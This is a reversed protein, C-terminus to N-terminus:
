HHVLRRRPPRVALICDLDDLLLVDTLIHDTESGFDLDEFADLVGVDDAELLDDLVAVGEVDDSFHRYRWRWRRRKRKRRM